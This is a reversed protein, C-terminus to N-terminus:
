HFSVFYQRVLQHRNDRGTYFANVKMFLFRKRREELITFFRQKSANKRLYFTVLPVSLVSKKRIWSLFITM